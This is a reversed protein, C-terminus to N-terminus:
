QFGRSESNDTTKGKEKKKGGKFRKRYRRARVTLPENYIQLTSCHRESINDSRVVSKVKSLVNNLDDELIKSAEKSSVKDDVVIDCKAAKTWRKLIYQSPLFVVQM